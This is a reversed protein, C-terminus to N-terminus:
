PRSGVLQQVTCAHRVRAAPVRVHAAIRRIRWRAGGHASHAVMFAGGHARVTAAVMHVDHAAVVMCWWAGGLVRTHAVMGGHAHARCPPCRIPVFM